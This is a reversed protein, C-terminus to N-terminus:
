TRLPMTRMAQETAEFGVLKGLTGLGQAVLAATATGFRAADIPSWGRDLAAIFGACFSDGCSTTDVVKIDHAPLTVREDGLALYSGRAGMKIIVARAGMALFFDAAGEPENISSLGFAEAVSPMFYDVYPLLLKLEEVASPRPAILDCTVIAGAEMATALLKAGAGGDLKPAGIGAWHVFKAKKSANIAGEAVEAFLSAGLLHFKPRVDKASVALLTTSTPYDSRTALLSVDIGRETLAMRIFKGMNDAGVASAIATNVGLMAAVLATGAATGAPQMDVGKILAVSEGPPLSEIPWAVIDVTALGICLLGSQM